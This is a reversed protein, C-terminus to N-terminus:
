TTRRIYEKVMDAMKTVQRLSDSFYSQNQKDAADIVIYVGVISRGSETLFRHVAGISNCYETIREQVNEQEAESMALYRQNQATGFPCKRGVVIVGQQGAPEFIETDVDQADPPGSVIVKFTSDNDKQYKLRLGEHILWREVDNQAKSAPSMNHQPTTMIYALIMMVTVGSVSVKPTNEQCAHQIVTPM